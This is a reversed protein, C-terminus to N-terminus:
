PVFIPPFVWFTPQNQGQSSRWQGRTFFFGFVKLYRIDSMEIDVVRIIDFGNVSDAGNRQILGNNNQDIIEFFSKNLVTGPAPPAAPDLIFFQDFYSTPM